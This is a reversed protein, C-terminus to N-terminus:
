AGQWHKISTPLSMRKEGLVIYKLIWTFPHPAHLFFSKGIDISNEFFRHNGDAQIM